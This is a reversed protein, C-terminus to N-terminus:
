EQIELQFERGNIYQQFSIMASSSGIIAKQKNIWGLKNGLAICGNLQCKYGKSLDGMFNASHIRIGTRPGTKDVLYLVRNFRSSFTPRCPYLGTPLCSINSANDRWPLEGTFWSRGNNEFTLVGFTGEDSTEKRSLTALIM